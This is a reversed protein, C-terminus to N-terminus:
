VKSKQQINKEVMNKMIFETIKFDFEDDIDVYESKDVLIKGCNESLITKQKILSEKYVFVAGNDIFFGDLDQTRKMSTPWEILKTMIGSAVADFNKESFEKVCRDILGDSRIPSTPNLCLIDYGPNNVSIDYLTDIILSFETSHEPKRNHIELSCENAIKKIDDDDTSVIIKDAYVSKKADEITWVILPKGLLMRLNKRPLRTSGGRAPIVILYKRGNYM